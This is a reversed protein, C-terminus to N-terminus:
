NGTYALAVTLFSVELTNDVTTFITGAYGGTVTVIYGTFLSTWTEFVTVFSAGITVSIVVTNVSTFFEVGIICDRKQLNVIFLQGLNVVFLRFDRPSVIGIKSFM